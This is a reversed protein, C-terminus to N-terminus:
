FILLKTAVSNKGIMGDQEYTNDLSDIIMSPIEYERILLGSLDEINYTSFTLGYKIQPNSFYNLQLTLPGYTEHVFSVIVSAVSECKEYQNPSNLNSSKKTRIKFYKSSTKNAFNVKKNDFDYSFMMNDCFISVKHYFCGDDVLKQIQAKSAGRAKFYKQIQSRENYQIKRTSANVILNHGQLMRYIGPNSPLEYPKGYFPFVHPDGSTSVPISLQYGQKQFTSYNFIDKFIDNLM